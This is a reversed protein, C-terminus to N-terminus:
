RLRCVVAGSCWCLLVDCLCVMAIEFQFVFQTSGVHRRKSQLVSSTLRLRYIQEEEPWAVCVYSLSM